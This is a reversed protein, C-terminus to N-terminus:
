ARDDPLGQGALVRLAAQAAEHVATEEDDALLRIAAPLDPSTRTAEILAERLTETAPAGSGHRVQRAANILWRVNRRDRQILPLFLPVHSAAMACHKWVCAILFWRSDDEHDREALAWEHYERVKMWTTQTNLHRPDLWFPHDDPLEYVRRFGQPICDRM